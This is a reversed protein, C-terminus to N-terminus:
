GYTTINLIAQREFLKIKLLHQFFHAAFTIYFQISDFTLKLSENWTQTSFPKTSESKWKIVARCVSNFVQNLIQLWNNNQM